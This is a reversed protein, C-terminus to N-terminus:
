ESLRSHANLSHFLNRAKAVHEPRVNAMRDFMTATRYNTIPDWFTIVIEGAKIKKMVQKHEGGGKGETLLGIKLLEEAAADPLGKPILIYVISIQGAYSTGAYNLGKEAVDAVM